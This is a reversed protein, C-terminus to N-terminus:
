RVDLKPKTEKNPYFYLAEPVSVKLSVDNNM